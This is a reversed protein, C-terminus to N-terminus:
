KVKLDVGALGTINGVKINPFTNFSITVRNEYNENNEVSHDLSSPFIIMTGPKPNHKYILEHNINNADGHLAFQNPLMYDSLRSFWTKGGTGAIFIIGSLVSWPHMHRHHWQGPRNLNAWMMSIELEKLSTYNVENSVLNVKRKIYEYSKAFEPKRQLMTDEYEETSSGHTEDNGRCPAKSWDIGNVGAILESYIERPLDFEFILTPLIELKKLIVM